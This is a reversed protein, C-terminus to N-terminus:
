AFGILIKRLGKIIVSELVGEYRGGVGGFILYFEVMEKGANLCAVGTVTAVVGRGIKFSGKVFM